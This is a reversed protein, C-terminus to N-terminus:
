LNTWVPGRYGCDECNGCGGGTTARGCGWPRPMHQQASAGLMVLILWAINRIAGEETQFDGYIKKWSSGEPRYVHWPRGRAEYRVRPRWSAASRVARAHGDGHEELWDALAPLVSLDPEALALLLGRFM